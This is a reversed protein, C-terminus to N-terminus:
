TVEGRRSTDTAASRSPPSALRVDAANGVGVSPRPLGLFAWTALFRALRDENRETPKPAVGPYCREIYDLM